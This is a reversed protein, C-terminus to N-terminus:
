TEADPGYTANIAVEVETVIEDLPRGHDLPTRYFHEWLRGLAAVDGDSIRQLDEAVGFPPVKPAPKPKPESKTRTHSLRPTYAWALAIGILVSVSSPEAIEIVLTTIGFPVILALAILPRRRRGLFAALVLVCSAVWIGHVIIM